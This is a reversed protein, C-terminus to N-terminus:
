IKINKNKIYKKNKVASTPINTIRFRIMNVYNIQQGSTNDSVDCQVIRYLNQINPKRVKIVNCNFNFCFIVHSCNITVLM